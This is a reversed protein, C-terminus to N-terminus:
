NCQHLHSVEVQLKYSQQVNKNTFENLDELYIIDNGKMNKVFVFYTLVVM